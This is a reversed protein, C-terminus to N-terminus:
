GNQVLKRPLPVVRDKNGKADRIVIIHQGFDIDAEAPSLRPRITVLSPSINQGLVDSITVFEVQGPSNLESRAGTTAPLSTPSHSTVVM